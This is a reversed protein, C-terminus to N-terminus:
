FNDISRKVKCNILCYYKVNVVPNCFSMSPSVFSTSLDLSVTKVEKEKEGKNNLSQPHETIFIGSKTTLFLKQVFPSEKTQSGQLLLFEVM